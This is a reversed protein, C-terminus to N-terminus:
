LGNLKQKFVFVFIEDELQTKNILHGKVTLKERNFIKLFFKFKNKSRHQM